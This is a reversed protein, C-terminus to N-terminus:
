QCAAIMWQSRREVTQWCDEMWRGAAALLQAAGIVWESVVHRRPCHVDDKWCLKKIWFGAVESAHGGVFFRRWVGEMLRDAVSVCRWGVIVLRLLGELRQLM